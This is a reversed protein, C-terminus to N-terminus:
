VHSLAGSDGSRCPENKRHQPQGGRCIRGQANSFDAAPQAPWYVFGIASGYSKLVRAIQPTVRVATSKLDSRDRLLQHIRAKLLKVKARGNRRVKPLDRRRGLGGGRERHPDAPVCDSERQGFTAVVHDKPRPAEPACRQEVAIGAPKCDERPQRGILDLSKEKEGRSM